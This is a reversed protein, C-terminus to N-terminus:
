NYFYDYKKKYQKRLEELSLGNLFVWHEAASRSQEPGFQYINQYAKTILDTYTEKQKRTWFNKYMWNEDTKGMNILEEPKRKDGIHTFMGLFLSYHLSPGEFINYLDEESLETNALYDIDYFPIGNVKKM